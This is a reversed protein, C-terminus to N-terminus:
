TMTNFMLHWLFACNQTYTISHVAMKSSLWGMWGVLCMWPRTRYLIGPTGFFRYGPSTAPMIKSKHTM